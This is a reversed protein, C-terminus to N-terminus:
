LDSMALAKLSASYIRRVAPEVYEDVNILDLETIIETITMFPEFRKMIIYPLKRFYYWKIHNFFEKLGYQALLPVINIAQTPTVEFLSNFDKTSCIKKLEGLLKGNMRISTDEAIIGLLAQKFINDIRRNSQCALFTSIDIEKIELNLGVHPLQGLKDLLDPTIAQDLQDYLGNALLYLRTLLNFERYFNTKM